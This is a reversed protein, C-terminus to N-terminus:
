IPAVKLDHTRDRHLRTQLTTRDNQIRAALGECNHAEPAVCRTCYVLGKKPTQPETTETTESELTPKVCWRCRLDLHTRTKCFSCRPM